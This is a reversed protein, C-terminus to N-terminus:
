AISIAINETGRIRIASRPVRRAASSALHTLACAEGSLTGYEDEDRPKQTMKAVVGRTAVSDMTDPADDVRGHMEHGVIVNKSRTRRRSTEYRTGLGM